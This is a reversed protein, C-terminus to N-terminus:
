KTSAFLGSAATGRMRPPLLPPPRPAGRLTSPSGSSTQEMVSPPKIPVPAAISSLLINTVVRDAGHHSGRKEVKGLRAAVIKRCWHRFEGPSRQHKHADRQCSANSAPWAGRTTRRAVCLAARASQESASRLRSATSKAQDEAAISSTMRCFMCPVVIEIDHHSRHTSLRTRSM